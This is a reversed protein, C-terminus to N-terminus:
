LSKIRAGVKQLNKNGIKKASQEILRGGTKRFNSLAEERNAELSRRIFGKLPHQKGWGGFEVVQAYWPKGTRAGSGRPPRKGMDHVGVGVLESLHRPNPHARRKLARLLDGTDQHAAAEAQQARWVPLAANMLASKVINKDGEGVEKRLERLAEDLERLGHVKTQIKVTM